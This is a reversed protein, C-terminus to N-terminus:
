KGGAPVKMAAKVLPKMPMRISSDLGIAGLGLPLGKDLRIYLKAYDNKMDIIVVKPTVVARRLNKRALVIEPNAGQPDLRQLFRDLVKSGIKTVNVQGSVDDMVGAIDLNLSLKTKGKDAGTGVDLETLQMNMKYAPVNGKLRLEAFGSLKGDLPRGNMRSIKFSDGRFSMDFSLAAIRYPGYVIEGVRFNDRSSKKTLYDAYNAYYYESGFKDAANRRPAVLQGKEVCSSIPIRGEIGTIKLQNEPLDMALSIGVIEIVGTVPIPGAVGQPAAIDANVAMRGSVTLDPAIELPQDSNFEATFKLDPAPEGKVLLVGKVAARLAFDPLEFEGSTIELDMERSLRWAMDGRVLKFPLPGLFEDQNTLSFEARGAGAEMLPSEASLELELGSTTFESYQDRYAPEKVITRGNIVARDSAGLYDLELRQSIQRARAEGSVGEGKVEAVLDNLKLDLRAQLLALRGQEDLKLRLRSDKLEAQGSLRGSETVVPFMEALRLLDLGVYEIKANLEGGKGAGKFVGSARLLKDKDLDVALKSLSYSLNSLDFEGAYVLTLDTEKLEAAGQFALDKLGAKGRFNGSAIGDQVLMDLKTGSLQLDGALALEAGQAALLGNLASLPFEGGALELKIDQKRGFGKLSGKIAALRQGYLYLQGTTLKLEGVAFDVIAKLELRAALPLDVGTPLAYIGRLDIEGVLSASDAAPVVKLSLKLLEPRLESVGGAQDKLRLRFDDGKGLYYIKARTAALDHTSFDEVKLSLGSFFCEVLPDDYAFTLDSVILRSISVEIPPPPPLGSPTDEGVVKKMAVPQVLDDFNFRGKKDVRIRVTPSIVEIGRVELQRHLLRKLSYHVKLAGLSVFPQEGGFAASEAVEVGQLELGHWISFDFGQVTIERGLRDALYAVTRDRIAEVPMLFTLALVLTVLLSVITVLTWLVLKLKIRVLKLKFRFLGKIFKLINKAMKLLKM